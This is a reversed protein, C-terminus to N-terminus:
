RLFNLTILIKNERISNRIFDFRLINFQDGLGVGLEHYIEDTTEGPFNLKTAMTKSKSSLESWGLGSWLNLRLARIFKSHVGKDYLIGGNIAYDINISAMRDGTFKKYDVGRMNGHFNLFTRGGFDLWRQPPLYGSAMGAAIALNLHTHYTPRFQQDFNMKTLFYSFDSRLWSRNTYEALLNFNRHYLQYFIEGKLGRFEGEAIIPNIRFSERGKFLSFRTNNRANKETQSLYTLKVALNDTMRYGLGLNGGTKYYYDRYDGKYLLSTLTNKGTTILKREEDWALSSFINTELFFQHQNDLYQIVAAESKFREDRLGYGGSISILSNKLLLNTFNFGYNIGLGEVRNYRFINGLQQTLRFYRGYQQEMELRVADKTIMNSEFLDHYLDQSSFKDEIKKIIQEQEIRSLRNPHDSSYTLKKEIEPDPEYIIKKNVILTTDTIEPNITYADFNIIRYIKIQFGLIKIEFEEEITEPLWYQGYFLSKKTKLQHNEYGSVSLTFRNKEKKVNSQTFSAAENTIVDSGVVEGRNKDIQFTGIVGPTTSKVPEVRLNVVINEGFGVESIKYYHYLTDAGQAFPYIPSVKLSDHKKADKLGLASADYLFRFPNPEPGIESFDNEGSDPNVFKRAKIIIRLSDPKMWYGDFYREDLYPVMKVKFPGYGFYIYTKSHGEFNASQIENYARQSNLQVKQIFEKLNEQGSGPSSFILAM